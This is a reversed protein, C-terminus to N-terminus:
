RRYVTRFTLSLRTGVVPETRNSKYYMRPPVCHEHQEQFGALMVLVSGAPLRHDVLKTKSTKDRVLFEMETGLSVTAIEKTEDLDAENDAHWPISSVAAATNEYRNCVCLNCGDPLLGQGDLLTLVRLFAPPWAEVPSPDGTYSHTIGADGYKGTRRNQTGERGFMKTKKATWTESIEFIAAALAPDNFVNPYLKLGPCLEIYPMTPRLTFM